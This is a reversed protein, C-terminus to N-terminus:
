PNTLRNRLHITLSDTEFQMSASSKPDAQTRVVVGIRGVSDMMVATVPTALAAGTRAHYYRFALDTATPLPGALPQQNLVGGSEGFSRRIWSEGGSAGVDYRIRRYLAVRSGAPIGVPFNTGSLDYALFDGSPNYGACDSAAAASTGTFTARPGVMADPLWDDTAVGNEFLVGSNSDVGFESGGPNPFLATASNNSTTAQCLIGWVVPQYFELANDEAAVMGGPLVSRLEAGMVEVAGRANQQAEERASQLSVFNGQGQLMQFVITALIVALVLGVILEILTFGARRDRGLPRPDNYSM